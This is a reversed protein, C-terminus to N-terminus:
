PKGKEGFRLEWDDGGPVAPLNQVTDPNLWTFKKGFVRGDQYIVLAERSDDLPLALLAWGHTYDFANGGASKPSRYRYCGDVSRDAAATKIMLSFTGSEDPPDFMKGFMRELPTGDEARDELLDPLAPAYGGGRGNYAGLGLRCYAEEAQLFLRLTGVARGSVDETLSEEVAAALAAATSFTALPSLRGSADFTVAGGGADLEGREADAIQCVFAAQSLFEGLEARTNPSLNLRWKLWARSSARPKLTEAAARGITGADSALYLRNRELLLSFQVDEACVEGCLLAGDRKQPVFAFRRGDKRAFFEAWALARRLRLLLKDADAVEAAFLWEPEGRGARFLGFAAQGGLLALADDGPHLGTLLRFMEMQEALGGAEERDFVEALAVTGKWLGEGGTAARMAALDAQAAVEADAPFLDILNVSEIQVPASCTDGYPVRLRFDLGGDRHLLALELSPPLTVGARLLDERIQYGSLEGAASTLWQLDCWLSVPEGTGNLFQRLSEAWRNGPLPQRDPTEDLFEHLLAADSAIYLRGGRALATVERKGKLGATALFGAADGDPVGEVRACFVGKQLKIPPPLVFYTMNRARAAELARFFRHPEFERLCPLGGWLLLGPPVDTDSVAGLVSEAWEATNDETAARLVPAGRLEALAAPSDARLVVLPPYYLRYEQGDGDPEGAAVEAAYLCFVLLAAALRRLTFNIFNYDSDNRGRM